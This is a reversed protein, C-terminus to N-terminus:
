ELHPLHNELGSGSSQHLDYCRALDASRTAGAMETSNSEPKNDEPM